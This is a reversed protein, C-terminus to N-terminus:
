KRSIATNALPETAKYIQRIVPRHGLFRDLVWGRHERTGLPADLIDNATGDNTVRGGCQTDFRVASDGTACAAVEECARSLDAFVLDAEAREGGRSANARGSQHFLLM